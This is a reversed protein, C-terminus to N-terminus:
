GSDEVKRIPSKDGMARKWQSVASKRHKPPLNIVTVLANDKFCYVANPTVRYHANEGHRHRLYDLYRRLGGTCEQVTLYNDIRELERAVARKPLGLRQRIRLIAHRTLYVEDTM